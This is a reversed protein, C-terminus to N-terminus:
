LMVALTLVSGAVLGLQAILMGSGNSSSKSSSASATGSAGAATITTAGTSSAAGGGTVGFTTQFHTGSAELSDSAESVLSSYQANDGTYSIVTACSTLAPAASSSSSASSACLPWCAAHTMPPM